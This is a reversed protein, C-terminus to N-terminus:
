LQAAVLPQHQAQAWHVHERVLASPHEARAALATLLEPTTPANGL